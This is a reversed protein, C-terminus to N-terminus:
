ARLARSVLSKKGELINIREIEKETAVEM